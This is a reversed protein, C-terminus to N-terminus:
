AGGLEHADDFGHHHQRASEASRPQPHRPIPRETTQTFRHVAETLAEDVAENFRTVGAPDTGEKEWLRLVSARLARYEAVMQSLKFGFEIRLAAHLGGMESLYQTPGRGKSKETQEAATQRSRMDRVIATLIEDAHDRLATADMGSAAPFLSRAFTEWEAVIAVRKEDIFEALGVFSMSVYYARQPHNARLTVVASPVAFAKAREVHRSPALTSTSATAFSSPAPVREQSM